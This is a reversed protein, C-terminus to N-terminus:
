TSRTASIGAMKSSTRDDADVEGKLHLALEARAARTSTPSQLFSDSKDNQLDRAGQHRVRRRALSITTFRRCDRDYTYPWLDLYVIPRPSAL